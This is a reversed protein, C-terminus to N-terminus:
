LGNKTRIAVAYTLAGLLRWAIDKMDLGAYRLRHMEDYLPLLDHTSFCDLIDYFKDEVCKAM